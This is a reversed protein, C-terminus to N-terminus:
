AEDEEAQSILIFTAYLTAGGTSILKMKIHPFRAKKGVLKIALGMLQEFSNQLLQRDLEDTVEKGDLYIKTKTEM